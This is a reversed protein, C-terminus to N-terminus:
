YQGIKTGDSYMSDHCWGCALSESNFPLHVFPPEQVFTSGLDIVIVISTEAGGAYNKALAHNKPDYIAM